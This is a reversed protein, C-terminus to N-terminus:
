KITTNWIMKIYFYYYEFIQLFNIYINFLYSKIVNLLLLINIYNLILWKDGLRYFKDKNSNNNIGVKIMGIKWSTYSSNKNYNYNNKLSFRFFLINSNYDNDNFRFSAMIM